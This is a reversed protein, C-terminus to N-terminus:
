ETGYVTEEKSELRLGGELTDKRADPGREVSGGVELM